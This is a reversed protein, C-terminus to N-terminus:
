SGVLKRNMHSIRKRVWEAQATLNELRYYTELNRYRESLNFNVSSKLKELCVPCLHIPSADMEDLNNSGNMCCLYSTCHAMSFMHGTEHALIKC